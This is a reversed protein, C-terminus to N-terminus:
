FHTFEILADSSSDITPDDELHEFLVFNNECGIFPTKSQFFNLSSQWLFSENASSLSIDDVALEIENTAEPFNIADIMGSFIHPIHENKMKNLHDLQIMEANIFQQIANSDISLINAADVISDTSYLASMFRIKNFFKQNIDRQNVSSFDHYLEVYENYISQSNQKLFPYKKISFLNFSQFERYNLIQQANSLSAGAMFQILRFQRSTLGRNSLYDSMRPTYFLELAETTAIMTDNLLLANIVEIDKYNKLTQSHKWPAASISSIQKSVNSLSQKKISENLKIPKEAYNVPLKKRLKMEPRM